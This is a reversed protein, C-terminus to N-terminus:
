TEKIEGFKDGVVKADAAVGGKTLSEDTFPTGLFLKKMIKFRRRLDIQIYEPTIGLM